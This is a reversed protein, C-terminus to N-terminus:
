KKKRSKKASKAPNSAPAPAEGVLEAPGSAAALAGALAASAAGLMRFVRVRSIRANQKIAIRLAAVNMLTEVPMVRGRLYIPPHAAGARILREDPELVAIEDAALELTENFEVFYSGRDLEWWMYKDERNRRMPEVPLKGAAVYEGGGFDVQGTPDVAYVNKVSLAVAYGHVQHKPSIMGGVRLAVEKGALLEMGPVGEFQLPVIGAADGNTWVKANKKSKLNQIKFKRQTGFDPM